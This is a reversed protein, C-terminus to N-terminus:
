EKENNREAKFLFTNCQLLSCNWKDIIFLKNYKAAFMTLVFKFLCVDRWSNDIYVM